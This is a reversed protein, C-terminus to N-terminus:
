RTGKPLDLRFLFEQRYKGPKFKTFKWRQLARKGSMDLMAHGSGYQIRVNKTQGKDDIEYTYIASGQQRKIKALGPYVPQPNSKDPVLGYEEPNLSFSPQTLGLFLILSFIAKM